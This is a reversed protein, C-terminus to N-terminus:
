GLNHPANGRRIRSASERPCAELMEPEIISDQATTKEFGGAFCAAAMAIIPKWFKIFGAFHGLKSGNDIM